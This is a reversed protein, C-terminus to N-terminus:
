YKSEIPPDSDIVGEPTVRIYFSDCIYYSAWLSDDYYEYVGTTTELPREAWVNVRYTDKGVGGATIKWFKPPTGLLELITKCVFDENIVPLVAKKIPSEIMEMAM